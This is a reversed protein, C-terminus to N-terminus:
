GDLRAKSDAELSALLEEFTGGSKAHQALKEAMAEVDRELKRQSEVVSAEYAAIAEPTSAAEMKSAIDDANKESLPAIREPSSAAYIQAAIENIHENHDPM